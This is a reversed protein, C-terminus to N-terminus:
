IDSCNCAETTRKDRGAIFSVVIVKSLVLLIHLLELNILNEVASPLTKNKCQKPFGKEMITKTPFIQVNIEGIFELVKPEQCTFDNLNNCKIGRGKVKQEL